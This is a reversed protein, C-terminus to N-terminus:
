PTHPHQDWLRIGGLLGANEDIITVNPAFRGTLHRANGGGIYLHDFIMLTDLAAIAEQVRHNWRTNGVERRAADGLQEDYTEGKRFRHQAIELHPALRGDMVVGTGFGTGLTVVVELGV